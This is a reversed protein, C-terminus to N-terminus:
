SIVRSYRSEGWNCFQAVESYNITSVAHYQRAMTMRDVLKWQGIIAFQKIWVLWVGPLPLVGDDLLGHLVLWQPWVVRTNPRHAGGGQVVQGTHTDTVLVGHLTDGGGDSRVSATLRMLMEDFPLVWYYTVYNYIFNTTLTLEEKTNELSQTCHYYVFM